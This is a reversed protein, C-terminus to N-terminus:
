SRAEATKANEKGETIQQGAEWEKYLQIWDELRM